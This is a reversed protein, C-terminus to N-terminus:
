GLGIGRLFRTRERSGAMMMSLDSGSLIFRMGMEIYRQMLKPEYVGGLGPHKGNARCAAVVREMVAAVKPDAFQGPIGMEMCLDNTGVLLVDIGDIAAMKEVNEVATPTEIMTVLLTSRNIAAAAEGIPHTEFDIQPLSGTVSRHGIPPYRVNSVMRAAVEPTDVHPVVVGQAGGDLVRTAHHHEFGPVRVIPTIGADQAAVSMQVATDVSMTSHEMDIFLWDFGCTKMIKGIDATRAQRLGIGLALEGAELRERAVNRVELM